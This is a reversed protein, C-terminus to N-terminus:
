SSGKLIFGDAGNGALGGGYIVNEKQYCTALDNMYDFTPLTATGEPAVYWTNGGSITRLVRGAPTATNHAMFGVSDSAFKIAKISGAGSGTFEKETWTVGSDTTYWLSGNDDGVWWETEKRVFVCNLDVGVAPSTALAWDEGNNTYIVIGAACVAVVLKTSYAYIDRLDESTLSGAEQATVTNTPDSTFYVYGNDAGIWTDRPSASSICTPYNSAVLGSVVKTWSETGALIDATPAWHIGFDTTANSVVVLNNGVCEADDPDEGAALTTIPTDGATGMGDSSYIVEAALGPSTGAPASVAFVDQCGDSPDNCDGCSPTDCVVIAVVENTVESSAKESYTMPLIEYFVRGSIELEETIKEVDGSELAGLDSTSYSTAYAYEFVRIKDWGSDYDRVDKCTGQHIQLDFACKRRAYDLVESASMRDQLTITITANEAAGRYEGVTDFAGYEVESPVEVRTVDGVPQEVGGAAAWAHYFPVNNPGAQGDISFVRSFGGLMIQGENAM